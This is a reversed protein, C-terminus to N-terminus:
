NAEHIATFRAAVMALTTTAFSLVLLLTVILNLDAFPSPGLWRGLILSFLYNGANVLTTSVFLLGGGALLSGGGGSGVRGRLERGRSISPFGPVRRGPTATSRPTAM